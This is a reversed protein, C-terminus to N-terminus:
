ITDTSQEATFSPRWYLYMDHFPYDPANLDPLMASRKDRMFHNIMSSNYSVEERMNMLWATSEEGHDRHEADDILRYKADVDIGNATTKSHM